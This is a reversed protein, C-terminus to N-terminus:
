ELGKVRKYYGPDGFQKEFGVDDTWKPNPENKSGSPPTHNRPARPTKQKKLWRALFEEQTSTLPM